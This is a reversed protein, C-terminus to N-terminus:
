FCFTSEIHKICIFLKYASSSFFFAISFFMHSPSTKYRWIDKAIFYVVGSLGWMVFITCQAVQLLTQGVRRFILPLQLQQQLTGEESTWTGSLISSLLCWHHPFLLDETLWTEGRDGGERTQWWTPVAHRADMGHLLLPRGREWLYAFACSVWCVWVSVSYTVFYCM